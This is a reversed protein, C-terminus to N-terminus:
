LVTVACDCCMLNFVIGVNLFSFFFTSTAARKQQPASPETKAALAAALVELEFHHFAQLGM